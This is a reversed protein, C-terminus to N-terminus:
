FLFAQVLEFRFTRDACRNPMAFLDQSDDVQIANIRIRRQRLRMQFEYQGDGILHSVLEVGQSFFHFQSLSEISDAPMDRIELILQLGFRFQDTVAFGQLINPSGNRTHRGRIGQDKNPAFAAHPLFEDSPREM